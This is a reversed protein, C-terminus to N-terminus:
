WINLSMHGLLRLYNESLVVLVNIHLCRIWLIDRMLYSHYRVLTLRSTWDIWHLKLPRSCESWCYQASNQLGTIVLKIKAVCGKIWLDAVDHTKAGLIIYLGTWTDDGNGWNGVWCFMDVLAEDETLRVARATRLFPCTILLLFTLRWHGVRGEQHM